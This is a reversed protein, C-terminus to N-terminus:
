YFVLLLKSQHVTSKRRGGSAQQLCANVVGTSEFYTFLDYIAQELHPACWVM